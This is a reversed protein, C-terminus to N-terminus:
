KLGADQEQDSRKEFHHRNPSVHDGGISPAVGAGAAARLLGAILRRGRVERRRRGGVADDAGIARAGDIAGVAIVLISDAGAASAGPTTRRAAASLSLTWSRPLRFNPLSLVAYVVTPAASNPSRQRHGPVERGEVPAPVMALAAAADDDDIAGIV